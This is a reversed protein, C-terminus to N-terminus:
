KFLVLLVADAEPIEIEEAKAKETPLKTDAEWKRYAKKAAHFLNEEGAKM